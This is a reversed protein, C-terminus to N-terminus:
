LVVQVGVQMKVVHEPVCEHLISKPYLGFGIVGVPRSGRVYLLSYGPEAYFVFLFYWREPAYKAVPIFYCETCVANRCNCHRSMRRATKAIMYGFFFYEEAAVRKEVPAYTAGIEGVAVM